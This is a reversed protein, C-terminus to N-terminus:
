TEIKANVPLTLSFTSGKGIGQSQAEVKWKHVRAINQVLYLGLGSGKASMDEARGVQYFKRFIKRLEKKEIGIGNDAFRIILKRPHIEFDVDVTPQSSNNYKVANTLLNMLMMDFLPLNVRLTPLEGEPPHIRINDNQFLHKNNYIVLNMATILDTDVFENAYSKSEIRALNLIRNINETLRAVDSIMFQIYQLQDARALEHKSFTQLFLKLSTVPTKLEHTFSNIFNNQLRYLQLMKQGYVFIGFIGMLIIGVLLSLILIVMWTQSALVQDRDLNFREIVSRLGINAEMYWYIYLFLSLGLAAISLLFILIPHIIWRPSNM